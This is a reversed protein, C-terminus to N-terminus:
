YAAACRATFAFPQGEPNPGVYTVDFTLTMATQLTDFRVASAVAGPSFVEGPVGDDEARAAPAYAPDVHQAYGFQSKGHVRIDNVQWESPKALELQDIRLAVCKSRVQIRTRRGPKIWTIPGGDVVIAVDVLQGNQDIFKMLDKM